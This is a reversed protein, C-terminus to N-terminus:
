RGNAQVSAPTTTLLNFHDILIQRGDDLHGDALADVIRAHYSWITQFYEYSQYRTLETADYADWYATLLGIIFPNDIRGFITMHLDRHENYPIQIGNDGGGLKRQATEVVKQLRAIDQPLLQMVAEDWFITELGRRLQSIQEFSAEEMALAFLTGPVVVPVFSFPERTMGVRPKVSVLGLARAHELQERLKGVSIGLEQSIETLTPLKDGPSVDHDILYQLFTSDLKELRM